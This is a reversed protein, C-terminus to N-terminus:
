NTPGVEIVVANQGSEDGALPLREMSDLVYVGIQVEAHKGAAQVPWAVRHLTRAAQGIEWSSTTRSQRDSLLLDDQGIRHGTEDLAHVFATYDHTMRGIAQWYASVYLAQDDGAGWALEYGLLALQEGFRQPEGLSPFLRVEHFAAGLCRDDLNGSLLDFPVDCGEALRVVIDSGQASLRFPSTAVTQLAGLPYQALAAGGVAIELHQASRFPRATLLLRYTREIPASVQVVAENAMWRWRDREGGELAYWGSLPTLLEPRETRDPQVAYISLRDDEHVAEGFYDKLRKRYLKKDDSTWGGRRDFVVYRINLQALINAPWLELRGAFVDSGDRGYPLREDLIDWYAREAVPPYLSLGHLQLGWEVGGPPWRHIHGEVMPHGHLTQLYMAYEHSAIHLIGYREDDRSLQELFPSPSVDATPYPVFTVYEAIVLGGALAALAVRGAQSRRAMLERLGIAALVALCLKIMMDMRAPVRLWEYFPLRHVVAYPLPVDALPEGAVKLTPGLALVAGLLAPLSWFRAERQAILGIMSLLVPVAGLYLCTEIYLSESWVRDMLGKLWPIQGWLPHTMPPLVFALLDASSAQLGGEKLHGLQGGLSALVFPGFFPLTFLIVLALAVLGYGLMARAFLRRPSTAAQWLLYVVTFPLYFLGIHRFDILLGIAAVAALGSARRPTPRAMFRLVFLAYLPFMFIMMDATHGLAHVMKGPYFAFIVGGLIAAWRNRALWFTLLYATYACLVFSLLWATIYARVPGLAMVLPVTALWIVPTVDVLPQRTQMPHYFPLNSPVDGRDVLSTKYWWLLWTYEFEDFDKLGPLAAGDALRLAVPYTVVLAIVTFLVLIALHARMRMMTAMIDHRASATLLHGPTCGFNKSLSAIGLNAHSIAETDQPRRAMVNPPKEERSLVTPCTEM